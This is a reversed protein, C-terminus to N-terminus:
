WLFKLPSLSMENFELFGRSIEIGGFQQSPVGQTARNSSRQHHGHSPFGASFM